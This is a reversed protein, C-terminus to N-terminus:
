APEPIPVPRLMHHILLTMVLKPDPSASKLTLDADLLAAFCSDLDLETFAKAATTYERVFVPSVGISAALKYENPSTRALEQALWVKQIYRTLMVIIGTAGEGSDIMRGAILLSRAVDRQGIAKQLEFINYPRSMGVVSAVDGEEVSPKAGIYLLVKEIEQQIERLSRGVCSQLLECAEPAVKKGLSAIRQRIWESIEADGPARFEVMAAHDHLAKFIKQRMDPKATVLVLITSPLPHAVYALLADRDTLKEFERVLVVRRESIMPHSSALALVSRADAESGNIIDLNFSRSSEDVAAEILRRVTEEVLLDEEGYFCYVPAFTRKRFAEELQERVVDPSPAKAM